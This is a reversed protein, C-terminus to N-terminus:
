IKLTKRTKGILKFYSLLEEFNKKNLDDETLNENINKTIELYIKISCIKCIELIDPKNLESIKYSVDNYISILDKSYRVKDSFIPGISMRDKNNDDKESFVFFLYIIDDPKFKPQIIQTTLSYKNCYKYSFVNEKEPIENRKSRDKLKKLFDKVLHCIESLKLM